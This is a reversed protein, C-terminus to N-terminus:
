PLKVTAGGSFSSDHLEVAGPLTDLPVDFPVRVDITFGPDIDVAISYDNMSAAAASDAAYERSMSDILKQNTAIFSESESGINRVTITAVIWQGRPQRAGYWDGPASVDKVVFQFKGDRVPQNIVGDASPSGGANTFTGTNDINSGISILTACGGFALVIVGILVWIWHKSKAVAHPATRQWTWEHGNFATPTSVPQGPKTAASGAMAVAILSIGCLLCGSV